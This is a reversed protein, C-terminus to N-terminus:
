KVLVMAHNSKLFMWIMMMGGDDFYDIRFFGEDLQQAVEEFPHSPNFDHKGSCKTVKSGGGSVIYDNGNSRFYQLGHDHGAAYIIGPYKNLVELLQVRLNSYPKSAIDQYKLRKVFGAFRHPKSHSANTYIPHHATVIVKENKQKADALMADLREFFKKSSDKLADPAKRYYLYMFWQTDIFIIKLKGNNLEVQEPGCSGNIPLFTQENRNQVSSSDRLFKEIFNEEALLRQKGKEFDTSNCWDHNGPIYFLNGEYKELMRLQSSIIEHSQKDNKKGEILGAPYINDGLFITTSNPHEKLQQTLIIINSDPIVHEGADGILFVSYSPSQALASLSITSSIILLWKM